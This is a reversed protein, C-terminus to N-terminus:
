RTVKIPVKIAVPRVTRTVPRSGQFSGDAFEASFDYSGATLVLEWEQSDPPRERPPEGPGVCRLLARPLAAGPDCSVVVPVEPKGALHHLPFTTLNGTVPVQARAGPERSMQFDISRQLQTTDVRWDGDADDSGGGKLGALLAKTFPSLGNPLGYADMGALTSYYVPARRGGLGGPREGPVIPVLGAHTGAGRLTDSTARCADVFFVQDRAQCRDMATHLTSFDLAGALPNDDDAGYNRLLLAMEPGESIGHGCFYFLLRDEPDRDGRAKWQRVAMSVNEGTAPAVARRNHTRPSAFPAPTESLLLAVSALPKPPFDLSRILWEAFRRASVPPSSLQGMGEHFTTM